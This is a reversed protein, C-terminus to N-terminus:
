NEYKRNVESLKQLLEDRMRKAVSPMTPYLDELEDPDESLDYFEFHQNGPYNYYTLRHKMRTLSITAQTLPAFSSNQKADMAFISREPDEIGGFGPLLKGEVWTPIPKGAWAALTPVVDLSSTYVNVDEREIQGPKSIILPVHILNEFILPTDHGIEGREFLEGHDSTFMIYSNEFLGSYELYELFRKLEEDWSLLFEDYYQGQKVLDGFPAKEEALPHIPKKKPQWGKSFEGFFKKAPRYPDHPPYVHLYVFSPKELGDLISILGDALDSLLFQETSDPIGLPYLDDYQYTNIVRERLKWLRFASGFFLSADRGYGFQFINDAFSELVMTADNKFLPWNYLYRRELSFEGSSIHTNLYKESQNLFVDAYRNQSYGYISHTDELLAFAQHAAHEKIIGSYGLNLARHSWPYLGTLLSATGPVTFTGASYHKHFVTAKQAFQELNPMTLRPYGYMQMHNASWADFVLIIINPTDDLFESIPKIIPPALLSSFALSSVKLFDRRSIKNKLKM